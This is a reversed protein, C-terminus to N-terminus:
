GDKSVESCIEKKEFHENWSPLTFITGDPGPLSEWWIITVPIGSFSLWNIWFPMTEKNAIDSIEFRKVALFIVENGPEIASIRVKGPGCISSTPYEKICVWRTGVKPFLINRTKKHSNKM